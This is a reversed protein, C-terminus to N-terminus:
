EGDMFRELETRDDTAPSMDTPNQLASLKDQLHALDTELKKNRGATGDREAKLVDIQAQLDAERESITGALVTTAVIPAAPATNGNGDAAAADRLIRGFPKM